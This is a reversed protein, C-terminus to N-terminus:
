SGGTIKWGKGWTLYFGFSYNTRSETRQLVVMGEARLGAPLQFLATTGIQGYTDLGYLPDGRKASFNDADVYSAFFRWLLKDTPRTDISLAIEWATGTKDNVGTRAPLTDDSSYLFNAGLRADELWTWNESIRKGAIGYSGGLAFAPNNEVRNASNKQGGVHGWLMQGDARFGNWFRFQTINGVEFEEARMTDERVRWNIWTDQKWHETDARFQFGQDASEEFRQVDDLLADHIAHTPIITGGFLFLDKAPEYAIRVLPETLDLSEDRDGWRHGLVAGAEITVQEHARYRFRVPALFGIFTEGKVTNFGSIELNKGFLAVETVFDLQKVPTVGLPNDANDPDPTGTPYGYNRGLITSDPTISYEQALAPAALFLLCPTAFHRFRSPM